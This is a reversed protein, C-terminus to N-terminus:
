TCYSLPLSDYRTNAKLPKTFFHKEECWVLKKVVSRWLQSVICCRRTVTEWLGAEASLFPLHRNRGRGALQGERWGETVEKRKERLREGRM